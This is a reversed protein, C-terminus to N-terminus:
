SSIEPFLLTINASLVNSANGAADIVGLHFVWSGPGVGSMDFGGTNAGALALANGMAAAAPKAAVLADADAYSQATDVLWHM